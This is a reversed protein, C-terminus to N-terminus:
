GWIAQLIKERAVIRAPILGSLFGAIFFIAISEGILTAGFAMILPGFPLMIPHATLIPLLIGFVFLLGTIVSCFVYFLSQLVYSYVIVNEKIGIAKLIGIQRRKSVANIYIMVFITVAAVAVSIASVIAAILTFADLVSQIVALLDQYTQVKLNPVLEQIRAKYYILPHTGTDVKVLVQSAQNATSLVSEAERASIYANSLATGFTINVIGKITYQRSVGNGYVVDIKDGVNAGGLDSPVPLGRGGAIAASIVIQDTDGPALPQGEVLYKNIDLAQSAEAPDIGYVQATVRKYVGDKNKDYSLSAPTLYTRTTGLVGPITRISAQVAEQNQIYSKPVPEEQPTVVIDSTSTNVELGIITDLLGSFVAPIFLMNFFSLSLILLMLVLTGRRGRVISKYAIFFATKLGNM